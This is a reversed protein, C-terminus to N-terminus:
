FRFTVWSVVKMESGEIALLGRKLVVIMFNMANMERKAIMVPAKAMGIASGSGEGSGHSVGQTPVQM